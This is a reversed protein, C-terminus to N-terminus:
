FLQINDLENRYHEQENRLDECKLCIKVGKEIAHEAESACNYCFDLSQIYIEKVRGM